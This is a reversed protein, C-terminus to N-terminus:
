LVKKKMLKRNAYCNSIIFEKDNIDEIEDQNSIQVKEKFDKKNELYFYCMTKLQNYDYNYEEIHAYFFAAVCKMMAIDDENKIKFYEDIDELVRKINYLNILISNSLMDENLWMNFVYYDDNVFTKLFMSYYQNSNHNYVDQPFLLVKLLAIKDEASNRIADNILLLLNDDIMEIKNMEELKSIMQLCLKIESSTVLYPDTKGFMQQEYTCLGEIIKFDKKLEPFYELYNKDSKGRISKENFINRLIKLEEDTYDRM